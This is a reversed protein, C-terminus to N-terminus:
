DWWNRLNKELLNWIKKWDKERNEHEEKWVKKEYARVQKVNQQTEKDYLTTIRSYPRGETHTESLLLLRGYRKEIRKRSVEGYVDEQQKKILVLVQDIENCYKKWNVIHKHEELHQKIEGLKLEM